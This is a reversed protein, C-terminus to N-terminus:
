SLDSIRHDLEEMFRELFLAARLNQLALNPNHQQDFQEGITVILTQLQKQVQDQLASLAMVDKKADDMAERLEMQQMLFEKPMSTNTELEPDLGALECLYFGRKLSQKLTQYATNAYTAIQLSQRKESDAASVHKDPHVEQQVKVYSQDLLQRDIKFQRPLNFFEFYDAFGYKSGSLNVVGVSM